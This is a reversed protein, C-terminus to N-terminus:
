ANRRDALAPEYWTAPDASATYKPTKDVRFSKLPRRQKAAGVNTVRSQDRYSESVVPEPERAKPANVVAVKRPRLDRLAQKGAAYAPLAVAGAVMLRKGSVQKARGSLRSANARDMHEGVADRAQRLSWVRAKGQPMRKHKKRAEAAVRLQEDLKNRRPHLENLAAVAAQEQRVGASRRRFGAAGLGVGAGGAAFYDAGRANPDGFRPM